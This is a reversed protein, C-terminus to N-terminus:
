QELVLYGYSFVSLSADHMSILCNSFWIIATNPNLLNVYDITFQLQISGNQTQTVTNKESNLVMGSTIMNNTRM